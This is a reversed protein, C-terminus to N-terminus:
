VLLTNLVYPKNYFKILLTSIEVTEFHCHRKLRNEVQVLFLQALFHPFKWTKGFKSKNEDQNFLKSLEVSKFQYHMLYTDAQQLAQGFTHFNGRKELNRNIKM